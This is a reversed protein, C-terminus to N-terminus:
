PPGNRGYQEAYKKFALWGYKSPIDLVNGILPYGKPGPPYPLGSRKRLARWCVYAAFTATFVLAFSPVSLDSLGAM